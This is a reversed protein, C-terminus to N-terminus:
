RPLVKRNPGDKGTIYGQAIAEAKPLWVCAFSVVAGQKVYLSRWQVFKVIATLGDRGAKPERIVARDVNGSPLRAQCDYGVLIDDGSETPKM